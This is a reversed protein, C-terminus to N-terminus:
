YLPIVSHICSHLTLPFSHMPPHKLANAGLPHCVHPRSHHVVGGVRSHGRTEAQSNGPSLYPPRLWGQLSGLSHTDGPCPEQPEAGQVQAMVLSLIAGLHIGPSRRGAEASLLQSAVRHGKSPVKPADGSAAQHPM